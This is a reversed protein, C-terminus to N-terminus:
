LARVSEIIEIDEPGAIEIRPGWGTDILGRVRVRRGILKRPDFGSVPQKYSFRRSIVVAFDGIRRHGFNLYITNRTEGVSRVVGEVLTLGKRRSLETLAAQAEVDVPWMALDGWLGAHAKRAEEEAALSHARCPVSAPGPRYRALGAEIVAEGVSILPSAPAPTAAAFIQAPTRGWRDMPAARVFVVRGVLWRALVAQATSTRSSFDLGALTTRRGDDLTVEVDGGADAGISMVTAPTAGELSCDGKESAPSLAIAPSQLVLGAAAGHLLARLSSLSLARLIM